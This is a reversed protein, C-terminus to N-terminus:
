SSLFKVGKSTISFPAVITGCALFSFFFKFKGHSCSYFPYPSLSFTSGERGGSTIM